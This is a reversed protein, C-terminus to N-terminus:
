LPNGRMARLVLQEPPIRAPNNLTICIRFYGREDQTGHAILWKALEAMEYAAEVTEIEERFYGRPRLYGILKGVRAWTCLPFPSIDTKRESGFWPRYRLRASMAGAM